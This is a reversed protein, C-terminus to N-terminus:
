WWRRRRGVLVLGCVCAVVVGGGVVVGVGVVVAVVAVVAVVVAVAVVAVVFRLCCCVDAVCEFGATILLDNQASFAMCKVARKHGGKLEGKYAVKHKSLLDWLFVKGDTACSAICKHM